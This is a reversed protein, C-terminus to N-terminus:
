PSGAKTPPEYLTAPRFHVTCRASGIPSRGLMLLVVTILRRDSPVGTPLTSLASRVRMRVAATEATAIM